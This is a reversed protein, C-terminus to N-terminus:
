IKNIRARGSNNMIAPNNDFIIGIDSPGKTDVFGKREVIIPKTIPNTTKM